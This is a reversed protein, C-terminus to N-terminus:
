GLGPLEAVMEPGGVDRKGAIAFWERGFMKTFVEDPVKLFFSDESVQSRHAMLAKRKTAIWPSVDLGYAIDAAPLGFEEFEKPDPMDEAGEAAEAMEAMGEMAVDRNVTSEYIQEIGLLKGAALGVRHVQIHDPHGYLGHPDYITLVDIPDGALADSVVDVFRAAAADVNAQWFCDPHDNDAEGMMGSDRYGLLIPPEAGLIKASEALEELRRRWLEEEVALVGPQPEGVEGNTATVLLVRHGAEAASAM